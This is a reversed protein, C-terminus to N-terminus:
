LDQFLLWFSDTSVATADSNNLNKKVKIYYGAKKSKM